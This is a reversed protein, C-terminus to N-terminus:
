QKATLISLLGSIHVTFSSSSSKFSSTGDRWSEQSCCTVGLFERLEVSTPPWISPPATAPSYTSNNPIPIDRQRLQHKDWDTQKWFLNNTYLSIKAKITEKGHFLGLFDAALTFHLRFSRTRHTRIATHAVTGEKSCLADTTIFVMTLPHLSTFFSLQALYCTTRFGGLIFHFLIPCM